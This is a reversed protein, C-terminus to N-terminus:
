LGGAPYQAIETRLHCSAFLIGGHVGGSGCAGGWHIFSTALAASLQFVSDAAGALLSDNSGGSCEDAVGGGAPAGPARDHALRRRGGEARIVDAAAVPLEGTIRRLRQALLRDCSPLSKRRLACCRVDRGAPRVMATGAHVDVRGGRGVRDM